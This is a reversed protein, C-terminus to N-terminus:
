GLGWPRARGERRTNPWGLTTHLLPVPGGGGVGAEGPPGQLPSPEAQGGLTGCSPPCLIGDRQPDWLRLGQPKRSHQNSGTNGALGSLVPLSLPFHSHLQAHRQIHTLPFGLPVTHLHCRAHPPHACTLSSLSPLEHTHSCPLSVTHSM